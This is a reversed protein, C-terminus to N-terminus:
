EETTNAICRCLSQAITTIASCCAPGECLLNAIPLLNCIRSVILGKAHHKAQIGNCPIHSFYFVMARDSPGSSVCSRVKAWVRLALRNRRSFEHGFQTPIGHSLPFDHAPQLPLPQNRPDPQPQVKHRWAQRWPASSDPRTGPGKGGQHAIAVTTLARFEIPRDRPHSFESGELGPPLGAEAPTAPSRNDLTRALDHSRPGEPVPSDKGVRKIM